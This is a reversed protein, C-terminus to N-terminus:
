ERVVRVTKLDLDSADFPFAGYKMGIQLYKAQAETVRQGPVIRPIGPPYFSVMEAAIRGALKSLPVRESPAYFAKAPPIECKAKLESHAPINKPLGKKDKKGDRAWKALAKFGSILQRRQHKTHGSTFIILLRHEDSLGLTLQQETMMWDEAEWGNIGLGRIDLLVKTQDMGHRADGNLVEPGMVRIGDIKAVEHRFKAALQLTDGILEEGEEVFQQRSADISALIPGSPSTSEFLDYANNLRDPHILKSKLLMISAGSLASMTKHISGVTVDAGLRIAAEPMEKSFAFHPGWAEDVMLPLGREHCLEAIAKVDSTVGYYSPSTIFVAKAKPNRDLKRRVEEVSVGHAIGWDEDYDPELFVPKVNTIIMSGILSKHSNRAILITDGPGAVACMSSHNSLSSGNTSFFCADARWAHAALKEAKQRVRQRERRDDLGKQETTDGKFAKSGILKRLERPASQGSQHGPADFAPSGQQIHSKLADVIPAKEKPKSKLLFTM